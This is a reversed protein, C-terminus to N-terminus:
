HFILRLRRLEPSLDLQEGFTRTEDQVIENAKPTLSNTQDFPDRLYDGNSIVRKLWVFFFDALDSYPVADYYPPDTFWVAASGDSLPSTRADALQVQGSSPLAPAAQVAQAKVGLGHLFSGTSESLLAAEAFDWIM